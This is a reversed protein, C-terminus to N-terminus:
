TPSTNEFNAENQLEDIRASTQLALMFLRAIFETECDHTPDDIERRPQKAAKLQRESCRGVWSKYM